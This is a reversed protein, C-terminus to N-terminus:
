EQSALLSLRGSAKRWREKGTDEERSAQFIAGRMIRGLRGDVVPPKRADALWLRSGAKLLVCKEVNESM